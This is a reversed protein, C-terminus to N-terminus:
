SLSWDPKNRVPFLIVLIDQPIHFKLNELLLLKKGQVVFLEKRSCM